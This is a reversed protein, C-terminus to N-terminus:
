AYSAYPGNRNLWAATMRELTSAATANACYFLIPENLGLSTIWPTDESGFNVITSAPLTFSPHAQADYPNTDTSIGFWWVPANIALGGTNLNNTLTIALTSVSAVTNAEWTGDPYQYVVYDNAAIVNNATRPASPTAGSLFPYATFVGPDQNINIVAQSAAAAATLYCSCRAGTTSNPIAQASLPRMAVLTQATTGVTVQAFTSATMCGLAGLPEILQTYVTGATASKKGLNRFGVYDTAM